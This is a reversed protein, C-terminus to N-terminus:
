CENLTNPVLSSALTTGNHTRAPAQGAGVRHGQASIPVEKEARRKRGRRTPRNLTCRVPVPSIEVHWASGARLGGLGKEHDTGELRNTGNPIEKECKKAKEM